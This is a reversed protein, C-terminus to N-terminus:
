FWISDNIEAWVVRYETRISINLHSEALYLRQQRPFLLQQRAVSAFLLEALFEDCRTTCIYHREFDASEEARKKGEKEDEGGYEESKECIIIIFKFINSINIACAFLM